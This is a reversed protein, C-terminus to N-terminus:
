GTGAGSGVSFRQLSTASGASTTVGIPGSSAGSPV